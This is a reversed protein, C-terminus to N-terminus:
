MKETIEDHTACLSLNPFKFDNPFRRVILSRSLAHADVWSRSTFRFCYDYFNRLIKATQSLSHPSNVPFGLRVRSNVNKIPKRVESFSDYSTGCPSQIFRNCKVEGVPVCMEWLLRFSSSFFHMADHLKWSMFKAEMIHNGLADHCFRLQNLSARKYKVNAWIRVRQARATISIFFNWRRSRQANHRSVFFRDCVKKKQAWARNTIFVRAGWGFTFKRMMLHGDISPM